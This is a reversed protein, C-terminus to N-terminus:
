LCERRRGWPRPADAKRAGILGWSRCLGPTRYCNSQGIAMGARLERAANRAPVVLRLSIFITKQQITGEARLPHPLVTQSEIDPRGGGIRIPFKRDHYIQMAATVDGAAAVIEEGVVPLIQRATMVDHHDGGVM